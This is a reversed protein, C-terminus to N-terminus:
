FDGNSSKELTTNLINSKNDEILLNIFRKIFEKNGKGNGERRENYLENIIGTTVEEGCLNKVKICTLM